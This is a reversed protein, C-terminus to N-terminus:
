YYLLMLIELNLTSTERQGNASCTADMYKQLKANEKFHNLKLNQYIIKM